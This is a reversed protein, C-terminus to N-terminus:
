CGYRGQRVAYYMLLELEAHIGDEHCDILRDATQALVTYIYM